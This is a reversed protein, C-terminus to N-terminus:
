CELIRESLVGFLVLFFDIFKTAEDDDDHNTDRRNRDDDNDDLAGIKKILYRFKFHKGM